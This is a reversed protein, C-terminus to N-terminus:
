PDCVKSATCTDCVSVYETIKPICPNASSTIGPICTNDSDPGAGGLIKSKEFVSIVKKEFKFPNDMNYFNLFVVDREKKIDGWVCPESPCPTIYGTQRRCTVTDAVDKLVSVAMLM